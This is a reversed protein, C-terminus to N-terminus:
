CMPALNKRRKRMEIISKKVTKIKKNTIYINKYSCYIIPTTMMTRMRPVHAMKWILAHQNLPGDPGM